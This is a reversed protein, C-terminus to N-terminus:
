STASVARRGRILTMEFAAGCHASDSGERDRREAFLGRWVAVTESAAAVSTLALVM